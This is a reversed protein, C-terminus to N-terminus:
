ANFGQAAGWRIWADAMRDVFGADAQKVPNQGTLEMLALFWHDHTQNLDELLIPIVAEGMAIIQRYAPHEARHSMRSLHGTERKWQDALVRFQAKLREREIKADRGQEDSQPAPQITTKM